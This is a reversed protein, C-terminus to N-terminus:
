ERTDVIEGNENLRCQGLPLLQPLEVLTSEDAALLLSADQKAEQKSEGNVNVFRHTGDVYFTYQETRSYDYKM